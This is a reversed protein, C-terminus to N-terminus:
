AAHNPSFSPLSTSAAVGAVAAARAMACLDPPTLTTNPLMIPRRGSHSSSGVRRSVARESAATALKRRRKRAYLLTDARDLLEALSALDTPRSRTHGITLSLSASLEGSANLLAVREEIRRQILRAAAGDADLALITFEDGGMRGVVDCDRVARRLLRGVAALARDGEAHGFTDNLQKFEDMDVYLLVVEKGQRRALRLQQEALTLFGRRNYLQTLEDTLSARRLRVEERKRTSIDRVTVAVGDATPVAQHLLWSAAFRRRDVRVDEIHVDQRTMTDAYKSRLAHFMATPVARRLPQGILVERNVRLLQAGTPNVDAVEFDEISGQADRVARLLFVGDASGQMADQLRRMQVRLAIQDGGSRAGDRRTFQWGALALVLAAFSLFPAAGSLPALGATIVTAGGIPLADVTRVTGALASGDLLMLVGGVSVFALACWFAARAALRDLM